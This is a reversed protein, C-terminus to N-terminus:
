AQTHLATGASRRATSVDRYVAIVARATRRWDVETRVRAGDVRGPGSLVARLGAAIAAVDRAVPQAGSVLRLWQWADGADVAVVPVDCCLAEKVVTPSGEWDSTLLLCDAARYYDPMADYPVGSVGLLEVDAAGANVDRIAADALDRRKRREGPTSPFLVIKRDVPLGLRRRATMRDGPTFRATDIGGPIVYARARDHPRALARRLQDSVCILADARRSAFRSLGRGVRSKLTLGGTRAPTGLLDDGHFTIVLPLPQFAAVFGTLGYHAHVLDFRGAHARRRVRGIASLYAARHGRGDIFEVEVDWGEAAIAQVQAEVFVGFAPDRANPYM